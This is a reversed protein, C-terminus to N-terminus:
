AHPKRRRRGALKIVGARQPVGKEIAAQMVAGLEDNISSVHDRALHAYRQTTAAVRHGLLKGIMQLSVGQAAALSAYSHRLDHLRVDDLGAYARSIIWARSLNKYAEGPVDGKIVFPEVRPLTKLVEIAADNLHITRPENGKSDPLRALKRAWDIHSWKIATVEGSRAGSLLALRLGAAAYPGIVGDREASEIAEAAAAIETESLFRERARERYMKLKRCPNSMPPRLGIDEAYTLLARLTSLTYNARRPTAKMEAHFTDTDDKTLASVPLHGFRPKIKQEFLKTYDAATRPKLKPRVYVDMWKDALEGVTMDGDSIARRRTERELAPNKGARMDDLMVRADTRATAVNTEPFTGVTVRRKKGGAWAQAIFIKGGAPTVRIAFGSLISDFIIQDRGNPELAGVVANTLKQM